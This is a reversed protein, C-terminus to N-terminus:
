GVPQWTGNPNRCATGEAVQPRGDIYITHTYNRCDVGAQQYAPGPVVEGYVNSDPSRWVVPSGAPGYQLAQYEAQYARQRAQEDMSAGIRNGILGGALIGVATAAAQGSGSGFQSGILGGATAGIITGGTENPNNCGMVTLGGAVVVAFKMGNKM